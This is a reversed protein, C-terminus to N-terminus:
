IKPSFLNMKIMRNVQSQLYAAGFLFLLMNSPAITNVAQTRDMFKAAHEQLIKRTIYALWGSAVIMCGLVGNYISEAFEESIGYVTLDYSPVIVAYSYLLAFTGVLWAPLKTKTGLSNLPKLKMAYWYVSYLGLTVVYLVPIFAGAVFKMAPLNDLMKKREDEKKQSERERFKEEGYDTLTGCYPCKEEGVEIPAGCAKCKMFILGKQTYVLVGAM